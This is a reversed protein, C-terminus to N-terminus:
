KGFLGTFGNVVVGYGLGVVVAGARMVAALSSKGSYPRTMQITPRLTACHRARGPSEGNAM